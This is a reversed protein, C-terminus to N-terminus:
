EAAAWRLGQEQSCTAALRLPGRTTSALLAPPLPSLGLASVCPLLSHGDQGVEPSGHSMSTSAQLKCVLMHQGM